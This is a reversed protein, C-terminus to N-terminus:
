FFTKLVRRRIEGQKSQQGCRGAASATATKKDLDMSFDDIGASHLPPLLAGFFRGHRSGPDTKLPVRTKGQFMSLLLM